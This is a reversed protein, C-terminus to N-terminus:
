KGGLQQQWKIRGEKLSVAVFLGSHSGIFVTGIDDIKTSSIFQSDDPEFNATTVIVAPSADVCKKLDVNWIEKAVSTSDYKEAYNLFNCQMSHMNFRSLTKYNFTLGKTAMCIEDSTNTDTNFNNSNTKYHMEKEWNRNVNETDTLRIKKNLDRKTPLLLWNLVDGFTKNLILEIPIRYKSDGMLEEMEDVLRLALISDGGGDIVFQSSVSIMNQQRQSVDSTYPLFKRWLNGLTKKVYDDTLDASEIQRKLSRDNRAINSLQREDLKGNLTIPINSLIIVQKPIYHSPLNLMWQKLLSEKRQEIKQQDLIDTETVFATIEINATNRTIMCLCNCKGTEELACQIQPLSTRKGNIKLNDVSRYYENESEKNSNERGKIFVNGDKVYGVDGTKVLYCRDQPLFQGDIMQHCIRTSSYVIIEGFEINEDSDSINEIFANQSIEIETESLISATGIQAIINQDFTSANKVKICTQWCSMESVGYVNYISTTTSSLVQSPISPFPEGGILLTKLPNTKSLLLQEFDRGLNRYLSPTIQMFNVQHKEIVNLLKSGQTKCSQPVFVITSKTHIALLVDVYFPDFTPPSAALINIHSLKFESSFDIINPLICQETVFILKQNGKESSSTTGSTQVVYLLGCINEITNANGKITNLDTSIELLNIISITIQESTTINTIEVRHSKKSAADKLLEQSTDIGDDTLIYKINLNLITSRIWNLPQAHRDLVIFAYKLKLVAIIAPVIGLISKSNHNFYLGIIKNNPSNQIKSQLDCSIQHAQKFSLTNPISSKDGNDYCLFTEDSDFASFANFIADIKSM